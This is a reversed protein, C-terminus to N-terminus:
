QKIKFYTEVRTQRFHEIVSTIPPHPSCFQSNFIDKYFLEECNTSRTVEFPFEVWFFPLFECSNLINYHLICYLKLINVFM